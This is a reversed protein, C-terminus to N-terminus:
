MWRGKPLSCLQSSCYSLSGFVRIDHSYSHGVIHGKRQSFLSVLLRDSTWCRVDHSYSHRVSLRVKFDHSFHRVTQCVDVSTSKTLIVAFSLRFSTLRSQRRIYSYSHRATQYIDLDYALFAKNM